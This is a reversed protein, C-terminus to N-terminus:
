SDRTGSAVFEEQRKRNAAKGTFPTDSNEQMSCRRCLLSRLSALIDGKAVQDNLQKDLSAVDLTAQTSASM